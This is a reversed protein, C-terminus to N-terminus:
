VFLCVDFEAMSLWQQLPILWSRMFRVGASDPRWNVKKETNSWNVQDKRRRRESRGGGRAKPSCLLQSASCSDGQGRQRHTTAKRLSDATQCHLASRCFLNYIRMQIHSDRHNGLHVSECQCKLYCTIQPM